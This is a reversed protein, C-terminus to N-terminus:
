KRRNCSPIWRYSIYIQLTFRNIGIMELTDSVSIFHLLVHLCGRKNDIVCIEPKALWSFIIGIKGQQLTHFYEVHQFSVQSILITNKPCLWLLASYLRLPIVCCRQPIPLLADQKQVQRKYGVSLLGSARVQESSCYSKFVVLHSIQTDMEVKKNINICLMHM